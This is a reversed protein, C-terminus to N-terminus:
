VTPLMGVANVKWACFITNKQVAKKNSLPIMVIGSDTKWFEYCNAKTGSVRMYFSCINAM